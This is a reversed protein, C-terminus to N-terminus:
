PPTTRISGFAYGSITGLMGVAATLTNHNHGMIIWLSSLVTVCFLAFLAVIMRDKM